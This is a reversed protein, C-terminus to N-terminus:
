LLPGSEPVSFILKQLNAQGFVYQTDSYLILPLVTGGSEQCGFVPYISRAAYSLVTVGSSFSGQAM